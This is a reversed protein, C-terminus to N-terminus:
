PNPAIAVRAVDGLRVNGGGPTDIRLDRITDVSQRVDPVGRVVVQFVKQHEFFAGVDLGEVLIAAARRVDGPKVGARRAKDLDVEIQLTPQVPTPLVRAHHVGDVRAVTRRLGQAQRDLVSLDQGYMRVTLDKDAPQLVGQTRDGEYTL